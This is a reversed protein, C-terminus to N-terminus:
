IGRDTVQDGAVTIIGAGTRFLTDYQWTYAGMNIDAGTGTTSFTISNWGNLINGLDANSLLVNGAQGDGIGMDINNTTSQITM